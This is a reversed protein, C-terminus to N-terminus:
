IIVGDKEAIKIFEEDTLSRGWEAELRSRLDCRRSVEKLVDSVIAGIHSFGDFDKQGSSHKM